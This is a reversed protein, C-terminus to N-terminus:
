PANRRRNQASVWFDSRKEFSRDPEARQPSSREAGRCFLSFKTSFVFLEYNSLIGGDYKALIFFIDCFKGL